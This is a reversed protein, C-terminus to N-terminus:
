LNYSQTFQTSGLSNDCINCIANAVIVINNNGRTFAITLHPMHKIFPYLANMTLMQLSTDRKEIINECHEIEPSQVPFEFRIYYMQM